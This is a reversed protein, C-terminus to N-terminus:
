TQGIPRRAPLFSRVALYWGRVSVPALRLAKRLYKRGTKRNGHKIALSAWNLYHNELPPEVPDPEVTEGASPLGRRARAEAVVRRMTRVQEVRRSHGVSALHCRYQFLMDPLKALRGVEALRLFLDLDEAPELNQRYGGLKRLIALRFMASPHTIVAGGGGEMHMRDIHEHSEFRNVEGLPEGDPDMMTVRCGVAVVDPHADMFAVQKEFRQPLSIDDSDMRALYRGRAHGLSENLAIAYGTNPRTFLRVRADAAAYKKLIQPSSDTSGDDIIIFEFDTFTQSLISEVAQALYREANYVPMAVSVTPADTM